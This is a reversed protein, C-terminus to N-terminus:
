HTAGFNKRKVQGASNIQLEADFESYVVMTVSQALPAKLTIELDCSKNSPLDFSTGPASKTSTLDFALIYNRRKFNERTIGLENEDYLSGTSDLLSFLPLLEDDGCEIVPYPLYEGGIKLAYHAIGIDRYNFPDMNSVGRYADGDVFAIFVRRPLTEGEHFLNPHSLDSSGARKTHYSMEVRRLPMIVDKGKQTETLMETVIDPDVTVYMIMLQMKTITIKYDDGENTLIPFTDFDALDFSVYLKSDPPLFRPQDFLESHIRGIASYEKSAYSRKARRLLARHGIAHSDVTAAAWLADLAPVGDNGATEFAHEEEDFGQILLMGRDKVDKPWMLRTELDGRYAYMGDGETVPQDNLRTKCSKFLNYTQGNAPLAKVKDNATNDPKKEKIDEGKKNTIKCKLYLYSRSPDILENLHSSVQFEITKANTISNIPNCFRYQPPKIIGVQTPLSHHLDLQEPLVEGTGPPLGEIIFGDDTEAMTKTHTKRRKGGRDARIRIGLCM